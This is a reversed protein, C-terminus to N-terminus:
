DTCDFTAQVRVTSTTPTTKSVDTWGQGIVFDFTTCYSSTDLTKEKVGSRSVSPRNWSTVVPRENDFQASAIGATGSLGASARWTARVKEFPCPCCVTIRGSLDTSMQLARIRADRRLATWAVIRANFGDDLTATVSAAPKTDSVNLPVQGNIASDVEVYQWFTGNKEASGHGRYEISHVTARLLGIFDIEGVPSNGVFAYLNAGGKEGIPDRNIWRGPGPNYFAQLDAVSMLLVLAGTLTAIRTRMTM